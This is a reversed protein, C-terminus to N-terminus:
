KLPGQYGNVIKKQTPVNEDLKMQKKEAPATPSEERLGTASSFSNQVHVVSAAPTASSTHPKPSQSGQKPIFYVIAGVVLAAGAYLALKTGLSAVLGTTATRVALKATLEANPIRAYRARVEDANKALIQEITGDLAEEKM